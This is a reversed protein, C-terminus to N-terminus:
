CGPGTARRMSAAVWQDLGRLSVEKQGLNYFANLAPQLSTDKWRRRYGCLPCSFSFHAVLQAELTSEAITVQRERRDLPRDALMTQSSGRGLGILWGDGTPYQHQLVWYVTGTQRMWEYQPEFSGFLWPNDGHSYTEEADKLLDGLCYVSVRPQTLDARETVGPRDGGGAMRQGVSWLGRPVESRSALLYSWSNTM